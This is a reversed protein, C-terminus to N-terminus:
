PPTSSTPRNFSTHQLFKSTHTTYQLAKSSNFTFFLIPHFSPLTLSSPFVLSTSRQRSANATVYGTTDRFSEQKPLAVFSLNPRLLPSILPSSVLTMEFNANMACEFFLGCFRVHVIKFRTEEMKPFSPKQAGQIKASSGNM